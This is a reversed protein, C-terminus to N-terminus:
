GGNNGGGQNGGGNHGGGQNGGGSSGTSASASKSAQSKFNSSSAVSHDHGLDGRSLTCPGGFVRKWFSWQERNACCSSQAKGDTAHCNDNLNQANSSTSSSALAFLM